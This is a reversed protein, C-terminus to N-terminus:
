STLQPFTDSRAPPLSVKAQADAFPVGIAINLLQLYLYVHITTTSLLLSIFLIPKFHTHLFLHVGPRGAAMFYWNSHKGKERGREDSGRGGLRM